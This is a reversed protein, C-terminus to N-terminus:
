IVTLHFLLQLPVACHTDAVEQGVHQHNPYREIHCSDQVPSYFLSSYFM